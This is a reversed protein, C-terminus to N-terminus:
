TPNLFKEVAIELGYTPQDIYLFSGVCGAGGWFVTTNKIKKVKEYSYIFEVWYCLAAYQRPFFIVDCRAAATMSILIFLVIIKKM